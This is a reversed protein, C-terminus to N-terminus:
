IHILSLNAVKHTKGDWGFTMDGNNLRTIDGAEPIKNIAIVVDGVTHGMTTGSGAHTNNQAETENLTMKVYDYVDDFAILATNAPLAAGVPNSTSYSISRYTITSTEDFVIATTPKSPATNNVDSFVFQSNARITLTQDDALAAKLGTTSTENKGSTGLNIKYITSDRTSAPAVEASAEVTTVEYRTVGIAGGHDIEVESNNTVVTDLDYVYISLGGSPHTLNVGDDRVLAAQVM